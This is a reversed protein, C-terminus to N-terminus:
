GGVRKLGKRGIDKRYHAGEFKIKAAAEYARDIAEALTSGLATVGLVRGGNTYVGDPERKTGAHVVTVGAMRSVEELGTIKMGKVYHGPYGASTMVVCVCPREDWELKVGNLRGTALADFVELIDSKLRALLPQTEPDGFRVNFELVKPGESAIMLGAYLIGKFHIGRRKLSQTLPEIIRASVMKEIEPTVVPAPSYAGMGGTNPGKDGDFVAKHDQSSALPLFKDGDVLAIYSAEEGVLFEEVVARLGAQKFQKRGYLADVAEDVDAQTNCVFVGKGEALGDAKIVVPLGFSKAANLTEEANACEAYRATPIGAEVLIRKAFAKSGELMAAAKNCGITKVGREELFDAVGDVLPAEPGVVVMDIAHTKIFGLLEDRNKYDLAVNLGCDTTGGNGPAIFLEGLIKSRAIKLALAHERGGSGLLLVNM